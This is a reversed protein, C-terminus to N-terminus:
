KSSTKFSTKILQFQRLRYTHYAQVCVQPVFGVSMDLVHCIWGVLETPQFSDQRLTLSLSPGDNYETVDRRPLKLPEVLETSFVLSTVSMSAVMAEM